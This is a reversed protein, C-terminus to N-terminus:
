ALSLGGAPLVRMVEDVHANIKKAIKKAVDSPKDKGIEIKVAISCQKEVTEVPGAMVKGDKLKGVALGLTAQIFNRKGRVMFAGKPMYEGSQAQKSVQDPTVWFVETVTIGMKWAKSFSATAVATEHITTESPQKGETKIVFFPSGPSETHFVIDKADTYKKIVIENSTADRGGICLFGESSIFWRFKEFWELARAEEKSDEKSELLLQKNDLEALQKKFKDIIIRANESKRKMKKSKEFYENATENLSKKINLTIRM